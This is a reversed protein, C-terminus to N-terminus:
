NEINARQQELNVSKTRRKWRRTNRRKSKKEEQGPSRKTESNESQYLQLEAKETGLKNEKNNANEM